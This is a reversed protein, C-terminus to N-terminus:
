CDPLELFKQSNRRSQIVSADGSERVYQASRALHLSGPTAFFFEQVEVDMAEADM